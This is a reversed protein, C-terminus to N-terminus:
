KLNKLCDDDFDDDNEIDLKKGIAWKCFEDFRVGGSNDIDLEKYSKNIDNVKYGWKEILHISSKFEEFSIYSNGDTNIRNFMESFEFYQRLYVLFYRFENKEIFDNNLNRNNKVSNKAADFAKRLVDKKEFIEPLKLVDKIGKNVESYSLFGNKNLDMDNFLQLRKESGEKTREVCLKECLKFYYDQSPNM